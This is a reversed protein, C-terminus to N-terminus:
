EEMFFDFDESTTYPTSYYLSASDVGNSDLIDFSISGSTSNLYVGNEFLSNIVPGSHDINVGMYTKIVENNHIDYGIVDVTYIDSVLSSLDLDLIFPYGSVSIDSFTYEVKINYINHEIFDDKFQVFLTRNTGFTSYYYFIDGSGSLLTSYTDDANSDVFIKTIEVFGMPINEIRLVQDGTISRTVQVTLNQINSISINPRFSFDYINGFNIGTFKVKPRTNYYPIGHPNSYPSTINLLLTNSIDFIKDNPSYTGDYNVIKLSQNVGYSNNYILKIMSESLDSTFFRFDDITANLLEHDWRNSYYRAGIGAVTPAFGNYTEYHPVPDGFQVGNKYFTVTNNAKVVAIHVWTNIDILGANSEANGGSPPYQDFSIAGNSKITIYNRTYGNNHYEGYLASTGDLSAVNIWGAFTFPDQDQGFLLPTEIYSYEYIKLMELDLRFSNNLNNEGFFNLIVENNLNQHSNNLVYSSELFTPYYASTILDWRS